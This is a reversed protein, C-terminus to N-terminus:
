VGAVPPPGAAPVVAYEAFAGAPLAAPTIVRDGLALGTVSEGVEVVEGCMEVGPTFPLPPRIQYQGRCLLADPFNVNAARVRLLVEGPGPRPTPVDDLRMAERPEGTEHVRWAKM